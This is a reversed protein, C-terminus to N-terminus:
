SSTVSVVTKGWLRWPCPSCSLTKRRNGPRRTSQQLTVTMVGQEADWHQAVTLQPTGAQHYWRRFQELDFPLASGDQTAGAVIAAVFDETTAATGDFRRVYEAMGQMFREHGLLTHLM